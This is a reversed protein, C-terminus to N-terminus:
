QNEDPKKIVAGPVVSNDFLPEVAKARADRLDIILNRVYPEYRAPVDRRILELRPTYKRLNMELRKFNNLVKGSDNDNKNLYALTNDILANFGGLEDFMNDFQKENNFTEASALRNDMLELALITHKKVNTEAALQNKETKSLTKLPPPAVDEPPEQQARLPLTLCFVCIFIFLCPFLLKQSCLFNFQLDCNITLKIKGGNLNNM